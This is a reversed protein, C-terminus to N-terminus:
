LSSNKQRDNNTETVEEKKATHPFDFRGPYTPPLFFGCGGDVELSIEEWDLKRCNKLDLGRSILFTQLKRERDRDFNGTSIKRVAEEQPNM